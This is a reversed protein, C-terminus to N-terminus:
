HTVVIGQFAHDFTMMRGCGGVVFLEDDNLPIAAVCHCSTLIAKTM